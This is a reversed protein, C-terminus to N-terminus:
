IHSLYCTFLGPCIEKMERRTGTYNLGLVKKVEAQWALLSFLHYKSGETSLGPVTFRRKEILEDLINLFREPPWPPSLARKILGVCPLLHIADNEDDTIEDFIDIAVTLEPDIIDQPKIRAPDDLFTRFIFERSQIWNGLHHHIEAAKLLVLSNAGSETSASLVNELEKVALQWQGIEILLDLPSPGVESLCHRTEPKIRRLDIVDLFYHKKMHDFIVNKTSRIAPSDLLVEFQRWEDLLHVPNHDAEYAGNPLRAKWFRCIEMADSLFFYDPYWNKLKQWTDEALNFNGQILFESGQQILQETDDFISLQKM